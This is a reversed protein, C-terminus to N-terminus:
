NGDANIQEKNNTPTRLNSAVVTHDRSGPHGRAALRAEYRALTDELATELDVNLSEALALLSFFADGVEAELGPTSQLPSEGYRSGELIAKAIEGVESALDLTHIHPSHILEHRALFARCQAQFTM